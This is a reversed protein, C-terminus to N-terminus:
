KRVIPRFQQNFQTYDKHKGKQPLNKVVDKFYKEIKKRNEADIRDLQKQQELFDRLRAEQIAKQRAEATKKLTANTEPQLKVVLDQIKKNLASQEADRKEGEQVLAELKKQNKQLEALNIPKPKKLQVSQKPPPPPRHAYARVMRSIETQKLVPRNAAQPNGTPSAANQADLSAPRFLFLGLIFASGIFIKEKFNTALTM